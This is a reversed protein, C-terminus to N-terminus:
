LPLRAALCAAIQFGLWLCFSVIILALGIKGATSM